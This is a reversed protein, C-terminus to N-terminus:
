DSSAEYDPDIVYKTYSTSSTANKVIEYQIANGDDNEIKNYVIINLDYMRKSTTNTFYTSVSLEKTVADYAKQGITEIEGKSSSNSVDLYCRLTATVLDVEVSEVGSIGKLSTEISSINADTIKPDLDGNFRSGIAPTNTASKAQVLIVGLAICPILVICLGILLITRSIRTEKDIPKKARKEKRVKVSM